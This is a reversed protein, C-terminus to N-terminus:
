APPEGETLGAARLAALLQTLDAELRAATVAHRQAMGALLAARGSGALLAQLMETGSPNLDFYQGGRSDLLLMQGDIVQTVVGSRLQLSM